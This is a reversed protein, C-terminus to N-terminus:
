TVTSKMRGLMGPKRTSKHSSGLKGSGSGNGEKADARQGAPLLGPKAAALAGARSQWAIADSAVQSAGDAPGAASSTQGATGSSASAKSVPKATAGTSPLALHPATPLSPGSCGDPRHLEPGARAQWSHHATGAKRNSGFSMPFADRAIQDGAASGTAALSAAPLAGM